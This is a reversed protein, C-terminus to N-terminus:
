VAPKRLRAVVWCINNSKETTYLELEEFKPSDYLDIFADRTYYYFFAENYFAYHTPDMFAGWGDTSPTKSDLVGGPKLVRYIERMLMDRNKNDIHELADYARIEDCSNDDLPIGDNLDAIIDVDDYAKIDLGTYGEPKGRHCALDLKM